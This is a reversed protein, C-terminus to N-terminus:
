LLRQMNSLFSSLFRNRYIYSHHPAKSDPLKLNQYGAM